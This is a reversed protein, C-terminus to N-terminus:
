WLLSLCRKGSVLRINTFYSLIILGLLFILQFLYVELTAESLEAIVKKIKKYGTREAFVPKYYGKYKKTLSLVVIGLLMGGFFHIYGRAIRPSFFPLFSYEMGFTRFVGAVIPIALLIATNIKAKKSIFVLLYMLFYCILLVSVYWNVTNIEYDKTICWNGMGLATIFSGFYDIKSPYRITGECFNIYVFLLIDYLITSVIMTLLLRILRKAYFRGFSMKDKIRDIYPVMVFGSILFFLEVPYGFYFRGGYFNLGRYFYTGTLQQYHHFIICVTCTIKIIDLIISRKKEM